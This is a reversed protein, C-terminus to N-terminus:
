FDLTFALYRMDQEAHPLLWAREIRSVRSIAEEPELGTKIKLILIEEEQEEDPSDVELTLSASSFTEEILSPLEYLQSIIGTHESLFNTIRVEDEILFSRDELYSIAEAINNETLSYSNRTAVGVYMGRTFLAPLYGTCSYAGRLATTTM